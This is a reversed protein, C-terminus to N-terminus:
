GKVIIQETEVHDKCSRSLRVYLCAVSSDCSGGRRRSVLEVIDMLEQSLYM